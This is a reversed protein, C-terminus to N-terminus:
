RASVLYNLSGGSAHFHGDAIAQQERHYKEVADAFASESSSADGGGCLFLQRLDERNWPGISSNNWQREQEVLVKQAPGAYPPFLPAPRDNQHVTIDHLGLGAFYGPLLDSISHNGRGAAARGRHQRLSFEFRRVLCEVTENETLSTFGLYNWLNNPEVCVVLGGPRLIRLMEHLADLPQALDMLETQCRFVDFSADDLPLKDAEGQRYSAM